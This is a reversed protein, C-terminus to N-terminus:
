LYILVNDLVSRPNVNAALYTRAEQIKAFINLLYEQGGKKRIVESIIKKLDQGLFGHQLIDNQNNSLLMFDRTIGELLEIFDM